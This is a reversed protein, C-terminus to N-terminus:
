LQPFRPLLSLVLCFQVSGRKKEGGKEGGKGESPIPNMHFLASGASPVGKKAAIRYVLLAFAKPLGIPLEGKKRGKGGGKKKEKGEMKGEQVLRRPWTYALSFFTFRISCSNRKRKKERKTGRDGLEHFLYMPRLIPTRRKEGRKGRRRKEGEM